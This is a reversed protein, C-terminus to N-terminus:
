SRRSRTPPDRILTSGHYPSSHSDFAKPNQRQLPGGGGKQSIHSKSASPGSSKVPVPPISVLFKFPLTYSTASLRLGTARVVYPFLLFQSCDHAVRFELTSFGFITSCSSKRDLCACEPMSSYSQKDGPDVFKNRQLYAKYNM